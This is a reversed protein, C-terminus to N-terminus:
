SAKAFDGHLEQAAEKYAEHAEEPTDFYGLHTTKGNTKIRARYRGNLSRYVGKLGLKNNPRVGSNRINEAHNALRLNCWRNDGKDGNIHDVEKPPFEGTMYLFALRHAYHSHGNVSIVRYGSQKLSGAVDGIQRRSTQVKALFVGTDPNYYLVRKLESKTLSHM